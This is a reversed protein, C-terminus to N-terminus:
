NLFLIFQSEIISYDKVHPYYMLFSLSHHLELLFLILTEMTVINLTYINYPRMYFTSNSAKYIEKIFKSDM